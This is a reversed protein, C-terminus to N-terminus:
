ERKNKIARHVPCNFTAGRLASHENDPNKLELVETPGSLVHLIKIYFESKLISYLFEPMEM